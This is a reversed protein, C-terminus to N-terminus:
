LQVLITQCKVGRIGPAGMFPTRLGLLYSHTYRTLVTLSTSCV